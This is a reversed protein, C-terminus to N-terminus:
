SHLAYRWFFVWGLFGWWAFTCLFALGIGLVPWQLLERYRGSPPNETLSVSHALDTESM